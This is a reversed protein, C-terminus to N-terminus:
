PSTGFSKGGSARARVADTNASQSDSCQSATRFCHSKVQRKVESRDDPILAYGLRATLEAYSLPRSPHADNRNELWHAWARGSGPDFVLKFLASPVAVRNPGITQLNAPFVPGSIIFVDGRARMVYRRTDREIKAWATRNMTPAQPVVNALSFSQAMATANPQNGAAALHGRDLGSGAYDRLEARESAPLRADAFFANSRGEDQADLLLERNLREAVFIPTRTVGSHLVAFSVFCLDRQADGVPPSPPKSHYFFQRCESFREVSRAYSNLPAFGLVVCITTLLLRYM